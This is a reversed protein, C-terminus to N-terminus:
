GFLGHIAVGFGGIVLVLALIGLLFGGVMKWEGKAKRHEAEKRLLRESEEVSLPPKYPDFKPM